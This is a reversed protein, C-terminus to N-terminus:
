RKHPRFRPHSTEPLKVLIRLLNQLRITGEFTIKDYIKKTFFDTIVTIYLPTGRDSPPKQVRAVHPIRALHGGLFRM